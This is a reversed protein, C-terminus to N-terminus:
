QMLLRFGIQNNKRDASRKGRNASRVSGPSDAWSGGRRARTDGTLNLPNEMAHKEYAQPDYADEVWEWVNGLMDYLGFTNPYYSGVPSTVAFGDDCDHHLWSFGHVKKAVRDLVNAYKCALDSDNGWFRPTKSGARAAYEWEAETPLRFERKSASNDSLWKAFLQAENWSVYVAPQEAGNLPYQEVAKSDHGADLKRVQANTVEYRGMWFSDVCVRHVPSEDTYYRQYQRKDEEELIEGKEGESQGM